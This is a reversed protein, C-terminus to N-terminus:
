LAVAMQQIVGTFGQAEILIPSKTTKADPGVRLTVDEETLIGLLDTLYHHNFTVSTGSAGSWSCVMAEKSANGARDKAQVVLVWSLGLGDKGPVINLSIAASDPDSNVRIRKVADLLEGRPVTLRENNDFGPGMILSEVDPFPLLLRQAIIVDQGVEVVVHMDDYGLTVMGDGAIRLARVIEDVSKVPITLSLNLSLEYVQCRHLRGGDCATVQGDRIQVQTLALRANTGSAAIRANALANALELGSVPHMEIGSVDLRTPLQEGVPVAVNWLARGSRVSLSTGVVELKAVSVPALKLIDYVRKAPILAVGEMHVTVRDMVVSVTQSGDSATLRLHAARSMSGQVVELLAHATGPVVEKSPALSAVRAFVEVLASVPANFSLRADAPLIEAIMEPEADEMEILDNLSTM